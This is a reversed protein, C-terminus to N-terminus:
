QIHDNKRSKVNRRLEIRPLNTHPMKGGSYRGTAYPPEFSVDSFM